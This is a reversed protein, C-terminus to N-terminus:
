FQSLIIKDASIQIVWTPSLTFCHVDNVIIKMFLTCLTIIICGLEHIIKWIIPFKELLGNNKLSNNSIKGNNGQFANYHM